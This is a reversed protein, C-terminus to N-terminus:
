CEKAGHASGNNSKERAQEIQRNVATRISVWPGKDRYRWRSTPLYGGTLNVTTWGKSSLYTVIKDTEERQSQYGLTRALRKLEKLEQSLAM